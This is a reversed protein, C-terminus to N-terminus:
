KTLLMLDSEDSVVESFLVQGDPALGIGSHYSLRPLAILRTGEGGATLAHSALYVPGHPPRLVYWIRGGGIAWNSCDEPQLDPVVLVPEGGPMIRWIGPAADRTFYVSGDQAPVSYNGGKFTVQEADGGSAPLRWIEWDGSRKSAFYIWKGDASYHAYRDEAPSTTLRRPAGGDAGVEYIDFNGDVAPSDFVISRGDPSWAPGSTYPGGFDTLRLASEGNRDAVWIEFSGSRDSAFAIRAGDPSVAPTWDWRTAFTIQKPQAGAARTDLGFLNTQGTWEEYALRSGDRSLMPSYAARGSQPVRTPPGGDVDVRWLGFPGARNSSFVIYRSDSEWTVGDIKLNDFTLRRPEGGKVPVVYLNSVGPAHWRVFALLAGDPSFAPESDEIDTPPMETFHRLKGDAPTLFDLGTSDPAKIVLTSGDPSWDVADGGYKDCDALHRAPGGVAAVSM